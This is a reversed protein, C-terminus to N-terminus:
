IDRVEVQLMRNIKVVTLDQPQNQNHDLTICPSDPVLLKQLM